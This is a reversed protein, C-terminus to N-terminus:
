YRRHHRHRYAVRRVHRHSAHRAAQIGNGIAAGAVIGPPGLVAGAAAGIATGRTRSEPKSWDNAFVSGAPLLIAASLLAAQIKRSINSVMILVEEGGFEALPM